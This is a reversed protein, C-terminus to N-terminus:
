LRHLSRTSTSTLSGSQVRSSVLGLPLKSPGLHSDKPADVTGAGAEDVGGHSDTLEISTPTSSSLQRDRRPIGKLESTPKARESERRGRKKKIEKARETESKKSDTAIDIRADDEPNGM